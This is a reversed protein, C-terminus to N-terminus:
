KDRRRLESLRRLETLTEALRDNLSRTAEQERAVSVEIKTLSAAIARREANAARRDAKAEAQTYRSAEITTLRNDHDLLKAGAWATVGLLIPWTARVLLDVRDWWQMGEARVARASESEAQSEGPSSM